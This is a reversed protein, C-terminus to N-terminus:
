CRYESLIYSLEFNNHIYYSKYKYYKLYGRILNVCSDKLIYHENDLSDTWKFRILIQYLNHHCWYLTKFYYYNKM